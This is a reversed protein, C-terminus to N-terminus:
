FGGSLPLTLVPSAATKANLELRTLELMLSFTSKSDADREDLYFWYGRYPVAVHAFPPREKGCAVHVKFLGGLVQQYDFVRGDPELTVRVIGAALHDPPVEVGQCLFYLVQLLSRTELDLTRLGDPPADALFPDVKETEIQYSRLGPRLRFLRCFELVDPDTLRDPRVRLSAQRRKKVLTWGDGKDTKRYSYGAKAAEVVDGGRIREEPVGETVKEESDEGFLAVIKRDQLRQLVEMGRVFEVFVPPEVPTPGSATEANSVWNLNELWLRFVVSIPWTTKSLYLVGELPLPTFLRRTFEQDDQPTFTLTPRDAKNLEAQPLVSTFSRTDGAVFFPMAKLSGTLEKQDAIATIALSSPTDLYRLRVINLLLQEESTTKVAENYRIRDSELARPGLACGVALAALLGVVGTVMWRRGDRM